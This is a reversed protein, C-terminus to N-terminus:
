DRSAHILYNGVQVNVKPVLNRFWGPSSKLVLLWQDVSERSLADGQQLLLSPRKAGNAKAHAITARYFTEDETVELNADYLKFMPFAIDKNKILEVLITPHLDIITKNLSLRVYNRHRPNMTKKTRVNYDADVLTWLRTEEEGVSYLEISLLSRTADNLYDPYASIYSIVEPPVFEDTLDSLNFLLDPENLDVQIPFLLVTQTHQYPKSPFFDDWPVMRAGGDGLYYFDTKVTNVAGDIFNIPKTFDEPNEPNIVRHFYDLYKQDIFQNYIIAPYHLTLATVRQYTFTYGLTVEYIGNGTSKTNWFLTDEANGLVNHQIENMIIEHHTDNLNSRKGIGDAFCEKTYEALSKTYLGSSVKMDYAEHIFDLFVYPISYDYRLSHIGLQLRLGDTVKVANIWQNLRSRDNCRFRIEMDVKHEVYLADIAIGSEKDDFVSPLEAKMRNSELWGRETSNDDYEIFAYSKYNTRVGDTYCGDFANKLQRPSDETDDFILDAAPDFGTNKIIQKVVERVVSRQITIDSQGVAITCKGM